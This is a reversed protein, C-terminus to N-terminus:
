SGLAAKLREELAKWTGVRELMEGNLIFTPTGPFEPYQETADGTMQVLQNIAAEDTLCKTSKDVAVGRVAAYNQFDALKALELFQQTPPMNELAQLREPPLKQVAAIWTPQDRFLARTMPFFTAGGGCRAILTATLDFPDRVYNRLEYGVKGSKVYNDILPQVGTEDFERCHPCTMSAFEILQVKAEPNGMLFGGAPTQTVVTSWDGNKPPDVKVAASTGGGTAAANGENSNCGAVAIIAAAGALFFSPKM